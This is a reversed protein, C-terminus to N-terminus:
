RGVRRPASRRRLERTSVSSRLCRRPRAAASFGEAETLGLLGAGRGGRSRRASEGAQEALLGLRCTGARERRRERGGHRRHGAGLELRAGDGLAQRRRPRRQGRQQGPRGHRGRAAKGRGPGHLKLLKARGIQGESRTSRRGEGLTSSQSPPTVSRRTARPSIAILSFQARRASASSVGARYIAGPRAASAAARAVASERASARSTSTARM